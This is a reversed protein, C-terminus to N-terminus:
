KQNISDKKPFYAGVKGAVENLADKAPKEGLWVPTLHETVIPFLESQNRLYFGVSPKGYQILQNMMADKFGPPHAKPNADVWKAVLAPDTYWKKLVPMWLGDAYLELARDPDSLWKFLLWAEEPHRSSKFLVTAGSVGVTVSQKLTPLVGIDYDVGAKGLDLNIWQGDVTMATLGAQLAISMSPMSKTELPSPAVHYKNVLDALKQIAESAENSNLTFEGGDESVWDGGNSFVFNNLPDSWTEFMVGYRVINNRDFQPDAANRGYKDLTLRQAAQVFQPWTWANIAKSPPAEVGAEQFLDRRYFLGFCEGATGVGWAYDDSSTYWLYDLFDSKDLEPDRELLDYINRFIQQSAFLEGLESTMYGLDPEENSSVMAKLKTNYDSNPLQITKVEIWPYQASFKRMTNEIAKREEFSGWYTFRLTVKEKTEAPPAPEDRQVGAIIIVIGLVFAIVAALASVTLLLRRKSAM